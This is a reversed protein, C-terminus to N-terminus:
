YNSRFRHGGELESSEDSQHSLTELSLGFREQVESLKAHFKLITQQYDSDSTRIGMLADLLQEYERLFFPVFYFRPEAPADRMFLIARQMVDILYKQQVVLRRNHIRTRGAEAAPHVIINNLGTETDTGMIIDPNYLTSSTTSKPGSATAM